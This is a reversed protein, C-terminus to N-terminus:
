GIRAAARADLRTPAGGRPGGAPLYRLAVIAVDDRPIPSSREAEQRLTDALAAAGAGASLGRLAREPSHEAGPGQDTVGDTYLVFSEGPGLRLEVQTLRLEPWIGLLDGHAALRAPEGADSVFVAPPHGACAISVRAEGSGVSLLAYVISIFRGDLDQRLMAENLARLVDAPPRPSGAFSRLTWRAMATVAAARAGKGCVDGVVVAWDDEGVSFVDYFDGGVLDGAGAPAFRVALECSPIDPLVAPLLSQQLTRATLESDRYLAETRAQLARAHLALAMRAGLGVLEQVEDRRWGRGRRALLARAVLSGRAVTALALVHVRAGGSELVVASTSTARGTQALRRAQEWADEVQAGPPAPLLAADGTSARGLDHEPATADSGFAVIDAEPLEEAFCYDNQRQVALGVFTELVAASSTGRDLRTGADALFSARERARERGLVLWGLFGGLALWAVTLVILAVIAVTVARNASDHASRQRTAQRTSILQELQATQSRIGDVLRKGAATRAFSRAGRPDVTVQRIVAPVYSTMYTRASDALATARAVFVGERRATRELALAAAPLQAQAARTPTLFLSNATIVYGRLGTEADVVEREVDITASLYEGMGLTANATARLHITDSLLLAVGLAVAAAGVTVAALLGALLRIQGGFRVM